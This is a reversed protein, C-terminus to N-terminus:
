YRIWNEFRLGLIGEFHKTNGTILTIQHQIAISAIRLDPESKTMGRRELRAKLRGYIEAGGEDFPLITINPFVHKSFTKLIKERSRSRHAGYYVEATNISSTFQFERPIQKLRAILYPSPNRKVVNSLVDTDFLYM